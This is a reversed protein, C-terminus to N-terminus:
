ICDISWCPQSALARQRLSEIANDLHGDREAIERLYDVQEKESELSGYHEHEDGSVPVEIEIEQGMCHMVISPNKWARFIVKEADSLNEQVLTQQEYDYVMPQLRLQCAVGQTMTLKSERAAARAVPPVFRRKSPLYEDDAGLEVMKLKWMNVVNRLVEGLDRCSGDTLTVHVAAESDSYPGEEDKYDVSLMIEFIDTSATVQPNHRTLEHHKYANAIDGVLGYDPCHTAYLSRTRREHPPLHERFHFLASACELMLRRLEGNGVSNQEKCFTRVKAYSTLVDNHFKMSLVDLAPLSM